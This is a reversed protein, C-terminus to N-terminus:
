KKGPLKLWKPAASRREKGEQHLNKASPQATEEVTPGEVNKVEIEQAGKRYQEKLVNSSRSEASAGEEWVVNVLIRGVMGLGSVLKINGNSGFPVVRPGGLASFRLSFPENQKVMLSRVFDYLNDATDTNSFKSVAQMQDPFRVKIEIEKVSANRQAQAEAQAALEADSLLRKNTSTAALRSQHLKAHDVTPEYDMESFAQQAAKPVNSSPPAFVTIPRQMSGNSKEKASDSIDLMLPPGATSRPAAPSQTESSVPEPPFPADALDPAIAPENTEPTLEAKAASVGHAGGFDQGEVESFYHGIGLIAEELPINTRRFTLRLLTSGSNYGLQALSKQLDTFSSLERGMIQIVPTEFFLRGSGDGQSSQLPVGRATFNQKVGDTGSEFKRLVTWLTTNSPFKDTLRTSGKTDSSPLQLAVSVVSPSRSSLVLELKAGSSLGALRVNRSLELANSKYRAVM